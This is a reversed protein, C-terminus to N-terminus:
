IISDESVWFEWTKNSYFWMSQSVNFYTSTIETTATSEKYPIVVTKDWDLVEQQVVKYTIFDGVKYKAKHM